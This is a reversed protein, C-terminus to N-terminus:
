YHTDKALTKSLVIDLIKRLLIYLQWFENDVPILDGIVVGFYKVFCLMETASLKLKNKKLNDQSILPPRNSSDISEFDFMALRFNLIDFSFSKINKHFHNLILLMDYNCVGELIDYMLDVAYNSTIHFSNIKNFICPEKIGIFTANNVVIDREYSEKSRLLEVTQKCNIKADCHPVKCFRCPYKCNFSEVFGTISHL